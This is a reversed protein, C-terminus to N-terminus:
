ITYVKKIGSYDNSTFDHGYQSSILRSGYFLARKLLSYGPNFKRQAEVNIIMEIIENNANPLGVKFRIDYYITGENLSYDETNLNEIYNSENKHVAISSIEPPQIYQEIEEVPIDKFEITCEKLIYSMIAKNSLLLKCSKDYSAEYETLKLDNIM